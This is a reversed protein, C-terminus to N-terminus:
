RHQNINTSTPHHQNINTSTPQHKDINASTPRPQSNDAAALQQQTFYLSLAIPRPQLNILCFIILKPPLCNVCTASFFIVLNARIEFPNAPHEPAAKSQPPFKRAIEDLKEQDEKDNKSLESIVNEIFNYSLLKDCFKVVLSSDVIHKGM